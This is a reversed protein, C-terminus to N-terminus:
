LMLLGEKKVVLIWPNDSARSLQHLSCTLLMQLRKATLVFSEDTGDVQTNKIVSSKNEGSLIKKMTKWFAKSDDQHDKILKKNYIQKAKRIERKIQGTIWPCNDLGRIRKQIFPAHNDAVKLMFM